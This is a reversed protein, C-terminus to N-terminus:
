KLYKWNYGGCKCKQRIATAVAQKNFNLWLSAQTATDFIKNLDICLVKKANHNKKGSLSKSIKKRSLLSHKKNHMPGKKGFNWNKKGKKMESMKKRAASDPKIGIHSKSIKLKHIESLKKGKNAKSINKIHEETLKRNRRKDSMKKRTKESHQGIGSGGNAINYGIDLNQASLIKIWYQEAENLKEIDNCEELVVKEFASTGYKNIANKIYIGSGYYNLYNQQTTQGVYIKNNITNTTLYIIGSISKDM